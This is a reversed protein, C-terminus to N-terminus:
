SITFQMKIYTVDYVCVFVFHATYIYLQPKGTFAQINKIIDHQKIIFFSWIFCFNNSQVDKKIVSVSCYCFPIPNHLTTSCTIGIVRTVIHCLQKLIHKWIIINSFLKLNTWIFLFLRAFKFGYRFSKSTSDILM